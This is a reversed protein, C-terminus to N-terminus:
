FENNVEKLIKNSKKCTRFDIECSQLVEFVYDTKEKNQEHIPQDLLDQMRPVIVEVIRNLFTQVQKSQGLETELADLKQQYHYNKEEKIMKKEKSISEYKAFM